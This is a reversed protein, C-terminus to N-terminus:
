KNEGLLEQTKQLTVSDFLPLAQLSKDIRKSLGALVKGPGCEVLTDVGQSALWEITEVWRVPSYLQKVLLQRIEDPDVSSTM